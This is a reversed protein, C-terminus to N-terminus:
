TAPRPMRNLVAADHGGRRRVPNLRSAASPRNDFGPHLVVSGDPGRINVQGAAVTEIVVVGIRDGERVVIPRVGEAGAFIAFGGAPSMVVGTLRPLPKSISANSIAVDAPPRRNEDFLPRALMREVLRLTNNRAGAAVLAPSQATLVSVTSREAVPASDNRDVVELIVTGTLAAAVLV